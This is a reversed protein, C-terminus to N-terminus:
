VDIPWLGVLGSRRSDSVEGKIEGILLFAAALVGLGAFLQRFYDPPPMLILWLAVVLSGAGGAAIMVGLWAASGNMTEAIFGALTDHFGRGALVSILFVGFVVLLHQHAFVFSFGERLTQVQSQRASSVPQAPLNLLHYGFASIALLGTSTAVAAVVSDASLWWGVLPPGIALGAHGALNVLGTAHSVESRNVLAGLASVRATLVFISFAASVVTVSLLVIPTTCDLLLLMALLGSTLAALCQAGILVSRIALRDVFDGSVFGITLVPILDCLGLAGLWSASSTQQWLLWSIALRLGWMGAVGFGSACALTVVDISWFQSTKSHGQEEPGSLLM